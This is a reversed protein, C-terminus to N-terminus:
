QNIFHKDQKERNCRFEITSALGNIHESISMFLLDQHFITQLHPKQKKFGQHLKSKGKQEDSPTLKFYAEVYAFLKGATEVGKIRDTFVEGTCM